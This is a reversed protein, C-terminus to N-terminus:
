VPRKKGWESILLAAKRDAGWRYQNIAGSARIVRHCPIVYGIPNKAVASAVARVSGKAGIYNALEQYSWSSGEPVALLAEWVKVQFVSGKVFVRLPTREILPESNQSAIHQSFIRIGYKKADVDCRCYRAEPWESMLEEISKELDFGCHLFALKVLGRNSWALLAEGFPTQSPGYGITVGMGATKYEGPTMSEFRVFNDYLRSESSYGLRDASEAISLETLLSKSTQRSVVQLFQKPSIGAWDQFTRQLHPSSMCAISALDALSPQKKANQVLHAIVKAMRQYLHNQEESM